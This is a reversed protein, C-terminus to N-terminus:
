WVCWVTDILYTLDDTWNWEDRCLTVIVCYDGQIFELPLGTSYTRDADTPTHYSLGKHTPMTYAYARQLTVPGWHRPTSCRGTALWVYRLVLAHIIDNYQCRQSMKFSMWLFRVAYQQKECRRNRYIHAKHCAITNIKDDQNRGQSMCYHLLLINAPFISTIKMKISSNSLPLTAAPPGRLECAASSEISCTSINITQIKRNWYKSM